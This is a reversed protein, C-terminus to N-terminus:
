GNAILKMVEKECAEMTHEDMKVKGVGLKKSLKDLLEQESENFDKDAYAVAFLTLLFVKKARSDSLQQCLDAIDEKLPSNIDAFEKPDIKGAKIIKRILGEEASVIKHDQQAMQIAGKVIIRLDSASIIGM